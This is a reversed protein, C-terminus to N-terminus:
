SKEGDNVRFYVPLNCRKNCQDEDFLRSLAENKPRLSITKGAARALATDGKLSFQRRILGKASRM